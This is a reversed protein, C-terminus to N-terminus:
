TMLQPAQRLSYSSSRPISCPPRPIPAVPEATFPDPLHGRQCERSGHEEENSNSDAILPQGFPGVHKATPRLTDHQQCRSGGDGRVRLKCKGPTAHRVRAAVLELEQVSVVSRDEGSRGFVGRHNQRLSLYSRSLVAPPDPCSRRRTLQSRQHPRELNLALLWGGPGGLRARGAVCGLALLTRAIALSDEGNSRWDRYISGVRRPTGKGRLAALKASRLAESVPLNRSLGAYFEDVFRYTKRDDLQWRTAVVVQPGAELLPATLGQIGEGNVLVGGASRCSSLVVLDANLKLAALDSPGVLGTEGEGPALALATRAATHEDVLAHTAFHIVRFPTLQAHKLYAASADGRSSSWPTRRMNLWGGLRKAQDAYGNLAGREPFCSGWFGPATGACARHIKGGEAACAPLCM